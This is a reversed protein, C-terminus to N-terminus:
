PMKVTPPYRLPLHRRLDANCHYVIVREVSISHDKRQIRLRVDLYNSLTFRSEISNLDSM